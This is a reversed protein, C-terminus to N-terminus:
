AELIEKLHIHEKTYNKGFIVSFKYWIGVLTKELDCGIIYSKNLKFPIYRYM